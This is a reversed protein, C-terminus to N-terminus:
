STTQCRKTQLIKTSTNCNFTHTLSFDFCHIIAFILSIAYKHLSYHLDTNSMPVTHLNNPCITSYLYCYSLYIFFYLEAINIPTKRLKPYKTKALLESKILFIINRSFSFKVTYGFM